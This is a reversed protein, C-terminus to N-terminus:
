TLPQSHTVAAPYETTAAFFAQMDGRIYAPTPRGEFVIWTLAVDLTLRAPVELESPLCRRVVLSHVLPLGALGGGQM